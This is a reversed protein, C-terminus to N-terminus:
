DNPIIRIEATFTGGNFIAPAAAAARRKRKKNRRRRVLMWFMSGAVGGGVALGVIRKGAVVAAPLREQLEGIEGDLRGRIEEIEAVTQAASEGM